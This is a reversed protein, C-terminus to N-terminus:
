HVSTLLCNSILKKQHWERCPKGGQPLPNAGATVPAGVWVGIMAGRAPKPRLSRYPPHRIRPPRHSGRYWLPTPWAWTEKAMEGVMGRVKEKAMAMTIGRAMIGSDGKAMAAMTQTDMTTGIHGRGMIEMIRDKAMIGPSEMGIGNPLAMTGSIRIIGHQGEGVGISRVVKIIGVGVKAM